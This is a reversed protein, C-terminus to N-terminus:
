ERVVRWQLNHFDPKGGKWEAGLHLTKEQTDFKQSLTEQAGLRLEKIGDWGPMAVGLANHFDNSSLVFKQWSHGGALKVETAFQDMGVVLINAQGSHVDLTLKASKSPAKWQDNYLKHTRCAWDDPKYTFWEKRWDGEFTEIVLSPKLTARVGAEKLQEPSVMQMLSSLNFKNATYIEYYYGAGTVPKDLPYVVNAYVWLPKDTSLLPLEAEWSNEKHNSRAYYWFRNITNEMNDNNGDMQGQQTYYIDVYLFLKSTNPIVTFLPIKNQTKLDLSVKPTEPFNFTGKLYQDFWLLETVMYEPTDQHNHHPSCTVRCEKSKIEKVALQLDNIHGHFDNAPSLFILPCSIEKLYVDDGLTNRFLPDENYRDSVGGCSPAAAKVRPDSGATLVTFKAGMSHGYVGLEHPNVEPQKELFTLARRAGVTTLFWSNNRPSKVSDLTWSATPITVFSNEPYRCPDHYGDVAGWDTTIEYNPDNTKNELFLKVGEHDVLYEPANIRGAWALSITAYGRKANTLVARYDAYQGGGHIQVLGPLNTARKPYGYIAAMIAKRGKFIGIRYRLVKMVVGDEEWEKLTEIDLPEARPDYGAWLEEVTQPVRRNQLIPFTEKLYGKDSQSFAGTPYLIFLIGLLLTWNIVDLTNKVYSTKLAEINIRNNTNYFM